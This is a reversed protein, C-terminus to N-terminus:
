NRRSSRSRMGRGPWSSPPPSDRLPKVWGEAWARDAVMRELNRITVAEGHIGLTCAAECPAPCVRGTLEPFNNTAHLIASAQRWRGQYIRDNMEPVRNALPCGSGHCFPIGCDMCRASQDKLQTASMPLEVEGFDKVRQAIDRCPAAERAYELFGDPKGM